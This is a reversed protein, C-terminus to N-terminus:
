GNKAVIQKDKITFYEKIGVAKFIMKNIKQVATKDRHCQFYYANPDFNVKNNSVKNQDIDITSQKKIETLKLTMKSFNFEYLKLGPHLLMKGIMKYEHEQQKKAHIEINEKSNLKHTELNM